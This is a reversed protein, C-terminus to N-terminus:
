KLCELIKSRIEMEDSGYYAYYNEDFVSDNAYYNTFASLSWVGLLLQVIMIAAYIGLFEKYNLLVSKFSSKAKNKLKILLEM